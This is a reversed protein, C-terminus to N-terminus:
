ISKRWCWNHEKSAILYKLKESNNKSNLQKKSPPLIKNQRNTHTDGVDCCINTSHSEATEVRRDDKNEISWLMNEQRALFVFNM